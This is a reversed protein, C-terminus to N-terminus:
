KRLRMVAHDAPWYLYTEDAASSGRVDLRDLVLETRGEDM